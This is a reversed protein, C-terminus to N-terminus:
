SPRDAMAAPSEQEVAPVKTAYLPTLWDMLSQQRNAIEEVKVQMTWQIAKSEIETPHKPKWSPAPDAAPSLWWQDQDELGGWLEQDKEKTQEQQQSAQASDGKQQNVLGKTL